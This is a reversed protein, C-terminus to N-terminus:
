RRVIVREPCYKWEGGELEFAFTQPTPPGTPTTGIGATISGKGPGSVVPEERTIVTSPPFMSIPQVKALNRLTTCIMRNYAAGDRANVATIFRDFAHSIGESAASSENVTASASADPRSPQSGSNGCAVATAALPIASLAALRRGLHSPAPQRTLHRRPVCM